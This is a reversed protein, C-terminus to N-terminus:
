GGLRRYMKILLSADRSAEYDKAYWFDLLHLNEVALKKQLVFPMGNCALVPERLRPLQPGGQAYGVWTKRATLVQVCNRLLGMPKKVFLLHLPFGIIGIISAVIDVLRKLRRHYPDALRFSQDTSVSEGSSESSDSGVISDSGSAHFLAYVKPNLQPLYALVERYRLQGICFIVSNFPISKNLENLHDWRGLTDTDLPTVAARGIISQRKGAHEMITLVNSYEAKDGAVLTATAASPVGNTKLIGAKGLIWRSATILLFSLIAGFFVIARSFRYQEPFMAYCALVILTALVTSRFQLSIRYWKDYLGAYWAAIIYLLTFSPLAIWLLGPQYVTNTRVYENWVSKVTWFSLLIIGADIIPLGARRIFTGIATLAARLWIAVHVMFVFFRARSRGYHKQVFISMAKYFLRVYNLSGRKTSEGKFHIITSGSFYYNFFGAQQIRYSLDVDEGYMFFEEDFSGTIDLVEKRIFMFAGALVDVKHDQHEDLHGLHYRAFVRSTPFIRALGFLKYLSTLPSPFSRKSERLFIGQGDIMRVGLAGADPHDRM